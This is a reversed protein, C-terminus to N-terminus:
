SDDRKEPTITWNIQDFLLNIDNCLIADEVSQHIPNEGLTIYSQLGPYCLLTLADIYKDALCWIDKWVCGYLKEHMFLSIDRLLRQEERKTIAMKYKKLKNSFDIKCNGEHYSLECMMHHRILENYNQRDLKATKLYFKDMCRTDKFSQAIEKNDTFAYLEFDDNEGYADYKTYFFWFKKKNDHTM